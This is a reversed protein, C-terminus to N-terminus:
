RTWVGCSRRMRSYVSRARRPSASRARARRSLRSGTRRAKRPVRGASFGCACWFYQCSSSPWTPPATRGGSSGRVSASFAAVRAAKSAQPSLVAAVAAAHASGFVLASSLVRHLGSPQFGEIEGPPDLLVLMQELWGDAVLLHPLVGVHHHGDDAAGVLAGVIM